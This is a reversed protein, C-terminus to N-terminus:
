RLTDLTSEPSFKLNFMAKNELKDGDATRARGYRLELWLGGGIKQDIGLAQKFASRAATGAGAKVNSVEALLYTNRGPQGLTYRAAVISTDTFRATGGLTQLDLEDRVDRWTLNFLNRSDNRPAWALSLAVHRGLSQVSAGPTPSKIRGKGVVLSVRSANWKAAAAARAKEACAQLERGAADATGAAAAAEARQEMLRPLHDALAAKVADPLAVWRGEVENAMLPNALATLWNLFEPPYEDDPGLRLVQNAGQGIALLRQHLDRVSAAYAKACAGQAGGKLETLVANRAALIPDDDPNLYLSLNVAWAERAYEAGGEVYKNRAVSFTTGAWARQLWNREAAYGALSVTAFGGFLGSRGPAFSIGFGDKDENLSGLAIALDKATQPVSVASKDLQIIENAAMPGPGLTYLYDAIGPAEASRAGPAASLLLALGIPSLRRASM